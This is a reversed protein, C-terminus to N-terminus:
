AAVQREIQQVLQEKWYAQSGPVLSLLRARRYYLHCDHEWTFGIGGHTQLNEQAAFSLAETCAVRAGAIALPAEPAGTTLAWAGFYAHARALTNKVHVDALKHKIAQYSGIVRGFAYRTLAYDRAMALCADAAGLQEFAATLAGLKEAAERIKSASDGDAVLTCDADTFLVDAQAHSADISDIASVSVGHQGLPVALVCETDDDIRTVLVALDALPADLVPGIRGSLRGSVLRLESRSTLPSAYCAIATGTALRPLWAQQLTSASSHLIAEMALARSSILPVPAGARGIEEAVVCLELVGLGVGGLAEPIGVGIAGMEALGRWLAEAHTARGELVERATGLPCTDTVLRRLQARFQQQEESFDFNM